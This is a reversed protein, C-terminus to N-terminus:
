RADIEVLVASVLRLLAEVGPFVQVKITRRKIERQVTREIPNSTRMKVRYEGPLGFAALGEPVNRELWQSLGPASKEYQQVLFWLEESARTLDMANWVARLETGITSRIAANAAHHLTLTTRVGCPM